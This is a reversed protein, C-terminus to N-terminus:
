KLLRAEAAEKLLQDGQKGTAKVVNAPIEKIGAGIAAQTRHHGDLIVMKGNIDAVDVPKSDDFGSKRMERRLKKVQNPSMENKGQRSILSKPEVKKAGGGCNHVLVHQQTVYYTHYDAVTFNYATDKQHQNEVSIVTLPNEQDDILLDGFHLETTNVWGSGQVYFPHNATADITQTEGIQNQITIQYIDKDYM